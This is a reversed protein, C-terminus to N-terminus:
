EWDDEYYVNGSIDSGHEDLAIKCDDCYFLLSGKVGRDTDARDDQEEMFEECRPCRM